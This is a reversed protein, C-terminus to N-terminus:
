RRSSGGAWKTVVTLSPPVQGRSPDCVLIRDGHIDFGSHNRPLKFLARTTGVKFTDGLTVATSMLTVCDGAVYILERGGHAWRPRYRGHLDASGNISIRYKASPDPFSRVYVEPRGSEDSRYAIWRGDPSFAGDMESFPSDLYPRVEPNGNLSVLLLDNETAERLSRVLATKGDPSIDLPSNFVDPLKALLERGGEGSSSRWYVNRSGGTTSAFYIRDGNPSWTPFPSGGEAGFTLRTSLSRELDVIWVEAEPGNLAIRNGDPSLVPHDFAGPPVTVTGLSKGEWDFWELQNRTAGPTLFALVQNFSVSVAPSGKYNSYGPREPLFTPEGQIQAKSPNVPQSLLSGDREFLLHGPPAYVAASHARLLTTPRPDSLSAARIPFGEPGAPISVFIFHDGDPLFQPFRHATEGLTTDISTVQVPQGGSSGVRYLPGSSAPCFLITGERNWTGGRGGAADCVVQVRREGSVSIRLLKGAEVFFGLQRSDPSWFPLAAGESGPLMEVNLSALPRIWLHRKGSSDAAVFALRTGDPSIAENAADLNFFGGPPLLVSARIAPTSTGRSELLRGAVFASIVFFLGALAWGLRFRLRRRSSVPAPTGAASGGEVVWKLHLKVDHVNQLREDPDKALCVKVLQELAPPTLHQLESMPPPESSMIKAILSAQSDGEFAKVGTTMEYLVTGLSFIDTRADAEKGELQEPAMYQVTGLISGKRTLPQDGEADTLKVTPGLADTGRVFPKALGFDLLKVGARTLMINGPKLDRHVVGARHAALLADAIQIGLRLTEDFSLRGGALRDALTDGELYEMVMFDVGDQSGVDFLACINPHSLNSIVKAERDFRQRFQDDGSLHHPLIKVAVPRDLRTDVARYVEGMGGAGLPGQIEYPGLRTGTRLPM